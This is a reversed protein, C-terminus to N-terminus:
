KFKKNLEQRIDMGLELEKFALNQIFKPDYGYTKAASEFREGNKCLEKLFLIRNLEAQNSNADLNNFNSFVMNTKQMPTIRQNMKGLDIHKKFKSINNLNSLTWNQTTINDVYGLTYYFGTAEDM